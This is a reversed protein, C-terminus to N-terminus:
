QGRLVGDFRQAVVNIIKDSLDTIQEETLSDKMSQMSIEFAIAKSDKGIDDSEYVDFIKIDRISDIHLKQISEVIDAALVEKPVIFSFDRSTPQYKSTVLAPLTKNNQKTPLRDVFLEFCVVPGCVDLERLIMPHIEGFHALVADKQFVYTGCRGPFYYSPASLELRCKVTVLNLVKALIEKIDFVEVDKQPYRWNRDHIKEALTAVVMDDEIVDTGDRLFRRGVEFIKANHQKKNQFTHLMNLHSIIMSPRLVAIEPAQVDKVAILKQDDIFFEAIRRSSFPFTKVEYLGCCALADSIKDVREDCDIAEAKEIEIEKVNQLGTLRLVESILDEEIQIDHRWSPSEVIMHQDNKSKIRMGLGTLVEDSRAFDDDSMNAIEKFKERNLVITHKNTPITGQSRIVSVASDKNTSATAIISASLKMAASISSPDVGRECRIRADSDIRLVQGTRAIATKDFYAGEILINKTDSSVASSVGGLIGGISLPVDASTVIVAGEPLITTRGDLTQLSEGQRAARVILEGPLKDRDFIHLPVGLDLCIYNAVDVPLAILKQGVAQLRRAIHAPTSGAVSNVAL